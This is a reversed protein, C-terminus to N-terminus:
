SKSEAAATANHISSTTEEHVNLLSAASEEAFTIMNGMAKILTELKSTNLQLIGTFKDVTERVMEEAPKGNAEGSFLGDTLLKKSDTAVVEALNVVSSYIQELEAKADSLVQTDINVGSNSKVSM